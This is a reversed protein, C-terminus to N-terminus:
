DGRETEASDYLCECVEDPEGMLWVRRFQHLGDRFCDSIRHAAEPVFVVRGATYFVIEIPYSSEYRKAKAQRLIARTPGGLRLYEPGKPKSLVSPKSLASITAALREDCFEKLEFAVCGEGEVHCLIDPEPPARSVISNPDIVLSSREAFERFVRM